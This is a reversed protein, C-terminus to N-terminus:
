QKVKTCKWLLCSVSSSTKLRLHSISFDHHICVNSQLGNWSEPNLGPISWSKEHYARSVVQKLSIKLGVEAPSTKRFIVQMVGIKVANHARVDDWVWCSVIIDTPLCQLHIFHCNYFSEFYIFHNLFQSEPNTSMHTSTHIHLYTPSIMQKRIRWCGKTQKTCSKSLVIGNQLQGQTKSKM